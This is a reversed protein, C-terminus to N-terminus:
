AGHCASSSVAAARLVLRLLVVPLPSVAAALRCLLLMVLLVSATSFDICASFTSHLHVLTYLLLMSFVATSDITHCVFICVMSSFNLPMLIIEFVLALFGFTKVECISVFHVLFRLM